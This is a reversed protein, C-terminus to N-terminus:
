WWTLGVLPGGGGGGGEREEWGEGRVGRVEAEKRTGKGKNCMMRSFWSGQKTGNEM